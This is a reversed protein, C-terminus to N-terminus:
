GPHLLRNKVQSQKTTINVIRLDNFCSLSEAAIIRRCRSEMGHAAASSNVLAETLAVTVNSEGKWLFCSTDNVDEGIHAMTSVDEYELTRVNTLLTSPTMRKTNVVPMWDLVEDIINIMAARIVRERHRRANAYGSRSSGQRGDRPLFLLDLWALTLAATLM